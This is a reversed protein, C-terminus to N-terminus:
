ELWQDEKAQALEIRLPRAAALYGEGNHEDLQAWLAAFEARAKQEFDDSESGAGGLVRLLCYALADEPRLDAVAGHVADLVRADDRDDTHDLGLLEVCTKEGVALAALLQPADAFWASTTERTCAAPLEFGAERAADVARAIRAGDAPTLRPTHIGSEVVELVVARAREAFEAGCDLELAACVYLADVIDSEPLEAAVAERIGTAVWDPTRESGRLRLYLLADRTAAITGRGASPASATAFSEDVALARDVLDPNAGLLQAVVHPPLRADVLYFLVTADTIPTETQAACRTISPALHPTIASAAASNAFVWETCGDRAIVAEIDALDSPGLLRPPAARGHRDALAVLQSAVLANGASHQGLAQWEARTIASDLGLCENVTEVVIREAAANVSDIEAATITADSLSAVDVMSRVVATDGGTARCLYYATWIADEGSRRTLEELSEHSVEPAPRGSYRLAEAVAAFTPLTSLSPVELSAHALDNDGRLLEVYELAATATDFEPPATTATCGALAAITVAAIGAPSLHRAKM